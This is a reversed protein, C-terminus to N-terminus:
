AEGRRKYEEYLKWTADNFPYYRGPSGPHRELETKIVHEVAERETAVQIVEDVM